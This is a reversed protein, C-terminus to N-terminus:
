PNYRLTLFDFNGEGTLYLHGLADVVLDHASDRGARGPGDYRRVWLQAGSVADYAVTAFDQGTRPGSGHVCSYAGGFGASEGTVYVESGDPSTAVAQAWHEGKGPGDYHARWLGLGTETDLAITTYDDTYCRGRHWAGSGTAFLSRGDPSLALAWSTAYGGPTEATARWLENGTVIDFAVISFGNHPPRGQGSVFLTTGDPSVVAAYGAAVGHTREVWIVDGSAADLAATEATEGVGKGRGWGTVLLASGDPTLISAWPYNLTGSPDLRRVWLQEGTEADYAVTAFVGLSRGSQGYRKVSRGSVFVESGDPAVALTVSTDGQHRPGDYRAVWLENGSASDYAVTAFDQKTGSGRSGGTVFLRAGDPSFAVKTPVDWADGPGDYRAVWRQEGTATDYVVTAFDASFLYGIPDSYGTVAIASGDPSLASDNAIDVFQGPGEYRAVWVPVDAPTGLAPAPMLTGAVAVAVVLTRWGRVTM